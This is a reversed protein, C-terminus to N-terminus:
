SDDAVHLPALHTRDGVRQAHQEEVVDPGVTIRGVELRTVVEAGLAAVHWLRGGHQGLPLPLKSVYELRREAQTGIAAALNATARLESIQHREGLPDCEKAADLKQAGIERLNTAREAGGKGEM